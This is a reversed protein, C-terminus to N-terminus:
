IENPLFALAQHGMDKSQAGVAAHWQAQAVSPCILIAFALTWRLIKSSNISSLNKM